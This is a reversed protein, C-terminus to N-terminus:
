LITSSSSGIAFLIRSISFLFNPPFLHQPFWLLSKWTLYNNSFPVSSFTSAAFALPDKCSVQSFPFPSPIIPSFTILIFSHSRRCSLHPLTEILLALPCFSASSTSISAPERPIQPPVPPSCSEHLPVLSPPLLFVSWMVQFPLWLHFSGRGILEYTNSSFNCGSDTGRVYTKIVNELLSNTETICQQYLAKTYQSQVWIVQPQFGM